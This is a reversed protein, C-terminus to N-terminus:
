KGQRERGGGRFYNNERAIALEEDMTEVQAEMDKDPLNAKATHFARYEKVVENVM